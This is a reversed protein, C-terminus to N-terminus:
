EGGHIEGVERAADILGREFGGLLCRSVFRRQDRPFSGSVAILQAQGVLDAHLMRWPVSSRDFGEGELEALHWLALDLEDVVKFTLGFKVHHVDHVFRFAVNGEVNTYIVDDNHESSIPLPAGTEVSNRYAAKLVEYENPADPTAIWKFGVESATQDARDVMFETLTRRALEVEAARHTQILKRMESM